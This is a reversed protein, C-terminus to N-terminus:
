NGVQTVIAAASSDRQLLRGLKIRARHLKSKITGVPLGTLSQLEALSLGDIDHLALLACQEKGLLKMASLISQITMMRETQREPEMHGPGAIVDMEDDSEASAIPSRQARRRDDVFQNYLIKLLWARPYEMTRFDAWNMHAKICVEQVLDEADAPLAALRRAARYLVPFHPKMAAEFQGSGTRRSALDVVKTM